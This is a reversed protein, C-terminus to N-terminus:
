QQGNVSELLEVNPFFYGALFAVAFLATLWLLTHYATRRM